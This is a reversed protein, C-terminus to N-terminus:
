IRQFISFFFGDCTHKGPLLQLYGEQLTVEQLLEEAEKTQALKGELSARIDVPVFGAKKKMYEWNEQNEKDHITCTSFILIGGPKVYQCVVDLMQKQLEALSLCSEKTVHYRIDNKKGMIGLGSCPLDAILIDAQEIWTTDTELADWVKTEINTFGVRDLNERIKRCKGESIDCSVISAQQNSLDALFLSKGGPAACVDRVQKPEDTHTKKWAYYGSLVSLMSSEDQVTIWGDRFIELADLRDPNKLLFASKLYHGPEWDIGHDHLAATVKEYKEAWDEGPIRTENMRVTVPRDTLYFALMDEVTKRDYVALWDKVIWEPMSYRVSLYTALDKEKPWVIEEKQRSLSRLVGNVFGSLGSFGRKKALKVAENCAASDPVADMYLIQYASVRMLNRIFPKMKKVPTKSFQNLVYDLTLCREVTGSAIRNLFARDQASMEPHKERIKQLALHGLVDQEMVEIMYEIALERVNYTNTM